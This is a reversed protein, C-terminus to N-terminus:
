EENQWENDGNQESDWIDQHEHQKEDDEHVEHQRNFKTKINTLLAMMMAMAMM